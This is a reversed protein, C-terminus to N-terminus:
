APATQSIKERLLRTRILNHALVFWLLITRVKEMGRVVMRDLNLHDMVAHVLEAVQGRGALITQGETSEMRQRWRVVEPSDKPQPQYSAEQSKGKTPVAFYPITGEKTLATIEDLTPYGADAIIEEPVKHYDEQIQKIMPSALGFDNGQQSVQMGVIINSQSDTCFQANYAPRYGGDAMKMVRAEPDTSSARREKKRKADQKARGTKEAQKHMAELQKQAKQLKDQRERLARERAAKQRRNTGDPDAEVEKELAEVQQRAEELHRTLSDKRQFSGSGASARIKKGDQAVRKMSVLGQSQLAAVSEILIHDLFAKQGVRFDALTHYNVSVGGCIWRYAIHEECLRELARASGVGELTAYLWLALLIRPDIASQGPHGEVAQIPAYLLSVDLSVAWEWVVRAMHDPPLQSDLDVPQWEIQERDARKLRPKGQGVPKGSSEEAEPLPFLSSEM